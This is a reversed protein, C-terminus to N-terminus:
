DVRARRKRMYAQMYERYQEPHRVRWKANREWKATNPSMNPVNPSVLATNPVCNHSRGVLALNKGCRECNMAFDLIPGYIPGGV